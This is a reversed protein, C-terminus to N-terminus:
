LPFIVFRIDISQLILNFEDLLLNTWIIRYVNKHGASDYVQNICTDGCINCFFIIVFEFRLQANKM